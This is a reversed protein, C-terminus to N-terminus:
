LQKLFAEIKPALLDYAEVNCHWGDYTGVGTSVGYILGLENNVLNFGANTRLDFYPMGWKKCVEELKDAWVGWPDGINYAILFCVKKGAYKSLATKCMYEAAGCFTFLDLTDNYGATITGLGTPLIATDNFGGQLCVFDFDPSYSDLREIISDTRGVVKALCTGGQGYNIYDMTNNNGIINVWGGYGVGADGYTISDGIFAISKGQLPNANTNQLNTIYSSIQLNVDLIYANDNLQSIVSSGEWGYTQTVKSWDIIAYFIMGSSSSSYVRPAASVSSYQEYLISANTDSRKLEFGCLGDGNVFLRAVYIDFTNVGKDIYLEKIAGNVYTNDSIYDRDRKKVVQIKNDLAIEKITVNNIVRVAMANYLSGFRIYQTNPPVIVLQDTITIESSTFSNPYTDIVAINADCFVYAAASYNVKGTYYYDINDNVPLIDSYYSWTDSVVAGLGISLYGGQTIVPTIEINNANVTRVSNASAAKATEVSVVGDIVDSVNLKGTQLVFSGGTLTVKDGTLSTTVSVNTTTQSWDSGYIPINNLYVNQVIISDPVTFNHTGSDIFDVHYASNLTSIKNDVESKTYTSNQNAKLNLASQTATSIPKNVDSTNDVNSLGVMAKTIGSVTGTFAPSAANAKLSLGMNVADVTPYKVGTGDVALSNQKNTKMEYGADVVSFPVPLITRVPTAGGFQFQYVPNTGGAIRNAYSKIVIRDTADFIGDDWLGSASFETYGGDIVPASISSTCILTEVGASDRHYVEFYFTATGTGSLHRINGFTTINFVGPQGILVGPASIRRSVLQSTTTIAPTSVDVAITNYDADHIDNVMKVYGAVDSAVNTPYLTLNTPLDSINLKMDLGDHVAKENPYLTESYNTVTSTKNATKEIIAAPTKKHVGDAQTTTFYAPTTDTPAATNQIGEDFVAQSFGLFPLFLLIFLKKM